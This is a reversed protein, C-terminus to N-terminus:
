LMWMQGQGLGQRVEVTWGIGDKARIRAGFGVGVEVEEEMMLRKEEEMGSFRLGLEVGTRFGLGLEVKLKM